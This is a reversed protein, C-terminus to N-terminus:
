SFFTGHVVFSYCIIVFVSYIPIYIFLNLVNYVSSQSNIPKENYLFNNADYMKIIIYM